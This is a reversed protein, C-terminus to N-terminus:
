QRIMVTIMAVMRSSIDMAMARITRNIMRSKGMALM